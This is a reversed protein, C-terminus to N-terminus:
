SEASKLVIGSSHEKGEAILQKCYEDLKVFNGSVWNFLMKKEKMNFLLKKIFNNQIFFTYYIRTLQNGIRELKIVVNWKARADSEVWTAVDREINFKHSVFFPDSDNNQVVCRHTSGNKAIKGNLESSAQLGMVWHGRFSVDSVVDFVMELPASIVGEIDLVRATAGKVSYDEIRPEPVYAALPELPLYCYKVPISDYEDEGEEPDTWAAQKMEVWASCANLLQHTFLVYENMQIENKMLRHAIILDKGFLKTFKKVHKEGLEGYHIVFKLALGSATSCAGCQCIRHTEYRRLHGHFRTYMRQVQALIEAATPTRGKRYFLIADGEIESVQLEMENADLLTELLEEVIHQSHVIENNNVFRTFGSIDPIFILTQEPLSQNNSTM